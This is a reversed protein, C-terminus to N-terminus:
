KLYLHKKQYFNQRGIFYDWSMYAVELHRIGSNTNFIERGHLIRANNMLLCDGSKLRLSYQYNPNKLEQFFAFYAEYVKEMQDFEINWNCTHSHGFNIATVEGYRDLELIPQSRQYFYQFDQYFQQFQIPTESLIKFYEPCKEKFDKAVRFGDILINEGGSVSNEVMYFCVMLPPNYRNPYDTHVTLPYGTEGLDTAALKAKVSAFRGYETYYIPGIDSLFPDLDELAMNGLLTFGLNLLENSWQQYNCSGADWYESPHENIWAKDWLIKEESKLKQNQDYSHILLWSIPFVSKHVPQEDWMITLKENEELVSLPKPFSQAESIDYIKQFSTPHRCEPCLCNDRLWIYHFRKGEVKIFNNDQM